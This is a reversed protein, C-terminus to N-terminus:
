YPRPTGDAATVQPSRAPLFALAIVSGLAAVAGTVIAGRAFGALFADSAASRILPRAGAPAADAVQGSHKEGVKKEVVDAVEDIAEDVQKEHATVLDKAKDFLDM